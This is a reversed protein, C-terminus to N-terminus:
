KGTIAYRQIVSEQGIISLCLDALRQSQIVDIRHPFTIQSGNSNSQQPFYKNADM